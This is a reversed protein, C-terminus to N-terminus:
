FTVDNERLLRIFEMVDEKAKEESPKNFVVIKIERKQPSSFVYKRKQNVEELIVPNPQSLVRPLRESIESRHRAIERELYLEEWCHIDFPYRRMRRIKGIWDKTNGSLTNTVILLVHDPNHELADDLFSQIDRKTPPKTVYRKCQVVWKAMRKSSPLPCDEKMAIFDRAKDGGSKGYWQIDTFGEKELLLGCLKEFDNPTLQSWVVKM